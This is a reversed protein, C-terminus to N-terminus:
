KMEKIKEIIYNKEATTLNYKDFLQEDIEKISKSWDIDSNLTFNQIPVFKYTKATAQHNAKAAEILFRVFKTKLYKSLNNASMENLNLDAGIVLHTETAITKPSSIITNLNDDSLNTGINNAFPTLVKWKNIWQRNKLITCDEIYGFKGKSAYIKIPEQHNPQSAFLPSKRFSTDFGFANRTSVYHILMKEDGSMSIYNDKLLNLVIRMAYNDSIFIDVGKIVLPRNQRDVMKENKINTVDVGKKRNDYNQNWLFYNAGGRLNINPFIDQPTTFNYISQIRLDQLMEKRFSDLGKGGKFWVSPVVMSIYSPRIKKANSIFKHYLPKASANAGRDMEQYPPNGVIAGIIM